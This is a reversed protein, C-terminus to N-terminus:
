SLNTIKFASELTSSLDSIAAVGIKANEQRVSQLLSQAHKLFAARQQPTKTSL